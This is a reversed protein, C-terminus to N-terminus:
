GPSDSDGRFERTSSLVSSERGLGSGQKYISAATGLQVPSDSDKRFERSPSLVSSKRGLGPGKSRTSTDVEKSLVTQGGNEHPVYENDIGTNV